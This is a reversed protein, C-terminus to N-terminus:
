GGIKALQWVAAGMGTLLIGAVTIIIKELRGMRSLLSAYREACVAEHVALKIAPDNMDPPAMVSDGRDTGAKAGNRQFWGPM